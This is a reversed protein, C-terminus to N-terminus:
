DFGEFPPIRELGIRLPLLIEQITGFFARGSGVSHASREIGLKRHQEAMQTQASPVVRAVAKYTFRHPSPGCIGALVAEQGHVALKFYLM